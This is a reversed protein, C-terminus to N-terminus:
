QLPLRLMMTDDGIRPKVEFGLRTVMNLLRTNSTLADGVIEKIGRRRCYEIIERMMITGLGHAKLNSRVTVAFEAQENDPDAIVRVVALTVKEGSMDTQIAVLAMERDYDIQTMRALQAPQLERMNTFMRFRVDEPTLAAFFALHAAGDEPRIPRILLPRGQWEIVHELEKPYPRIALRDFANGSIPAIEVRAHTAVLKADDLFTLEIRLNAIEGVESVMRSISILVLEIQEVQHVSLGVDASNMVLLGANAIMDAALVSNLPPLGVAKNEEGYRGGIAIVPGFVADVQVDVVFDTRGAFSLDVHLGYAALLLSTEGDTLVCRKQMLAADLVSSVSSLNAEAAGLSEPVQMLLHQNRRYQAMQMFGQVAQEPTDFVPVNVLALKHRAVESEVGMWCTLLTRSAHQMMPIIVEVLADVSIVSTPSHILLVCDNGKDQLLDTLAQRCSDLDSIIQIQRKASYSSDCKCGIAAVQGGARALADVALLGLGGGSTIIALREGSLNRAYALTEAANFLDAMSDVRLMGARRFVADCIKDRRIKESPNRCAAQNRPMIVVVPKSRAAARAASIFKRAQQVNEIYLLIARTAGDNALYDLVDAVDVDISAGVAVFKSFGIERSRAWELVGAAVSASQSVFALDGALASNRYSGAYLGSKPVQLGMYGPGLIRTMTPRAAERMAQEVIPKQDPSIASLDDLVMVAKVGKKGLDSIISPVSSASTCILALNINEPLDSINGYCVFDGLHRYKPNVPLLSGAFGSSVCNRWIAAGLSGERESAGIVAIAQPAFM